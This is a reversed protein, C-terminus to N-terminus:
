EIGFQILRDILDAYQIGSDKWLLPYMSFPTFGPMTNIENLYIKNTGRELFFDVRSLGRCGLEIYASKAYEQIKQKIEVTLDAPIILKSKGDDFYKAEYDYFEHSPVIEGVTSVIPNTNGLVACEIERADIGEEVIVKSDYKFASEISSLLDEKIKVKSIGVSSGLNAPKVFMPFGLKKAIVDLDYERNKFITISKTVAIGIISLIKKTYDKDMCLASSILNCGVYPINIMDFLGQIRGDEGFPGHLLPFVVDIDKQLIEIVSGSIRVEKHEIELTKLDDEITDVAKWYGERDIGFLSISYKDKDIAKVIERATMVSIEHEESQGGFILAINIKNM